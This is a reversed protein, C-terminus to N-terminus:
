HHHRKAKVKFTFTSPTPDPNGAPYVAEVTLTHRGPKLKKTKITLPSACAFFPGKDIRADFNAGVYEQARAGFLYVGKEGQTLKKPGTIASTDPPPISVNECNSLVDQVDASVTDTGGGCDVIDAVGDRVSISDNGEGGTVSDNGAGPDITDNGDGADVQDAGSGGLIQDNGEHTRIDTRGSWGRTDVKDPLTSEPLSFAFEELNALAYTSTGAGPVAEILSSDSVTVTLAPPDSYNIADIELSDYGPGGDMPGFLPDVIRDNGAGGSPTGADLLLDDGAGGDASGAGEIRDNGAGTAVIDTFDATVFDRADAGTYQDAASDGALNSFAEQLNPFAAATTGSLNVTDAGSGAVTNILTV